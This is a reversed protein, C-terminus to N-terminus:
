SMYDRVTLSLGSSKGSISEAFEDNLFLYSAEPSAVEDQSKTVKSSLIGISVPV